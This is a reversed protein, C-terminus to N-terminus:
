VMLPEIFNKCNMVKQVDYWEVDIDFGGGGCQKQTFIFL